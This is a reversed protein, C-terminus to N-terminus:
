LRGELLRLAISRLETERAEENISKQRKNFENFIRGFIEHAVIKQHFYLEKKRDDFGTVFNGESNKEAKKCLREYKEDIRKMQRYKPWEELKRIIKENHKLLIKRDIRDM